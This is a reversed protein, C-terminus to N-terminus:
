ASGNARTPDGQSGLSCVRWSGDSGMRVAIALEANFAGAAYNLKVKEGAIELYNLYWGDDTDDAWPHRAAADLEAIKALVETAVGIQEKTVLGDVAPFYITFGLDTSRGATADITVWGNGGPESQIDQPRFRLAYYSSPLQDLRYNYTDAAVLPEAPRRRIALSWRVGFSTRWVSLIKVLESFM